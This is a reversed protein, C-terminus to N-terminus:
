YSPDAYAINTGDTWPVMAVHGDGFSVNAQGAQPGASNRGSGHRCSLYNLPMSDSVMGDYAIVRVPEFLGDQALGTIYGPGALDAAPADWAELHTVPEACLIKQSPNRASTGKFPYSGTGGLHDVISMFGFPELSEGLGPVIVVPLEAPSNVICNMQYSFPYVQGDNPVGRDPDDVDMPCRLINLNSQSGMEMIVPSLPLTAAVGNSLTAPPNTRWYIWDSADFGYEPGAACGPFVDRNDNCYLLVGITLEKCNNRCYVETAKAKARALTPLLLAALIAIIAIVVLLEILTFALLHSARRSMSKM